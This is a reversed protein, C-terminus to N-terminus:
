KFWGQEKMQQNTLKKGNVIKDTTVEIMDEKLKGEPIMSFIYEQMPLSYEERDPHKIYEIKANESMTNFNTKANEAEQKTYNVLWTIERLKKIPEIKIEEFNGMEDDEESEVYESFTLNVVYEKTDGFIAFNQGSETVTKTTNEIPGHIIDRGNTLVLWKNEKEIKYM